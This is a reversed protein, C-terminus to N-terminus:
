WVIDCTAMFKKIAKKAFSVSGSGSSVQNGNKDIVSVLFDSTSPQSSLQKLLTKIKDTEKSTLQIESANRRSLVTDFTILSNDNTKVLAKYPLPTSIVTAPDIEVHSLSLKSKTCDFILYQHSNAIEGTMMAKKGSTFIDEETTTKWSAQACPLHAINIVAVIYIVNKFM